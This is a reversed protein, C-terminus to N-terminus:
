EGDEDDGGIIRSLDDEGAGASYDVIRGNEFELTIDEIIGSTDYQFRGKAVVAGNVSERVPASFVESGPINKLVVSNAFTMGNISMTLNTGDGNIIVVRDAANLRDILRAQAAEIEAWPQDCAEFFIRLYERYDTQDQAADAETPVLMLVYRNEGTVCRERIAKIKKSYDQMRKKDKPLSQDPLNGVMLQTNIGEYLQLKEDALADLGEDTSKSILGNELAEDEIDVKFEVGHQLLQLAITRVLPYTYKTGRIIVRDGTSALSSEVFQQAVGDLLSQDVYELLENGQDILSSNSALAVETEDTVGSLELRRLNRARFNSELMSDFNVEEPRETEQSPMVM